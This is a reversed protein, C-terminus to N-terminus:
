LIGFLGPGVDCMNAWQWRWGYSTWVWDKRYCGDYAMPTHRAHWGKHWGYHWGYHYRSHAQAAGSWGAVAVAAIATALALSKINNSAM